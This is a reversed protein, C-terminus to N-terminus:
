SRRRINSVINPDKACYITEIGIALQWSDAFNNLVEIEKQDRQKFYGIILKKNKEKCFFSLLLERKYKLIEDEDMTGEIEFNFESLLEKVFKAFVKLDDSSRLDLIFERNLPNIDAIVIDPVAKINSKKAEACTRKASWWAKARSDYFYVGSGCWGSESPIFKQADVITEANTAITGHFLDKYSEIYSEGMTNNVCGLLIM